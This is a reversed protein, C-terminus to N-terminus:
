RGRGVIIKIVVDKEILKRGCCPCYNPETMESGNEDSLTWDDLYLECNCQSCKFDRCSRWVDYCVGRENKLSNQLRM